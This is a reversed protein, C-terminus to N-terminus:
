WSPRASARGSIRGGIGSAPWFCPSSRWCSPNARVGAASWGAKPSPLRRPRRGVLAPADQEDNEKDEPPANPNVILRVAQHWTIDPKEILLKGVQAELDDPVNITEQDKDELKEKLEDFAESLRDSAAFMQYTSALTEADPIVKGIGHQKLKSEVFDVLQRSTMANLEVRQSGLFDIADEDVGADELRKDSIKPDYPEPTLGDIDDYNLGPDIVKPAKKYSYRRTGNELTDRIIIGSRDFDHLVLLPIGFKSCIGEALERAATVSMGKSSMIGIDYRQALQVREFLPTFGEKEIYLLAGFCGQPGYTKVSAPAFDAEEM